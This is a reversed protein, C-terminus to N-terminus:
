AANSEYNNEKKIMMVLLDDLTCNEIVAEKKQLLVPQKVLV